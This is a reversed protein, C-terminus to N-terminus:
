QKVSGGREDVVIRCCGYALPPPSRCGSSEVRSRVAWIPERITPVIRIAVAMFEIRRHRSHPSAAPRAQRRTSGCIPQASGVDRLRARADDPGANLITM